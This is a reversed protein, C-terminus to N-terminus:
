MRTHLTYWDGRFVSRTFEIALDNDLFTVQQSILVAAPPQMGLQRCEEPQALAAEIETEVHALRLQYENRLVSFLSRAALDFRLIDPCLYHPLWSLQIAIPLGDALRLRELRVVEAGPPVRLRAAVDDDARLISAALVRSSPTMGRRLMDETFSSQPVLEDKLRRPAVYTGKGVTTYILGERLLEALAQRVTIRSVGHCECLERESPLQAHAALQQSLIQGRLLDRLQVHLPIGSDKDLSDM